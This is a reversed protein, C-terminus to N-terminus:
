AELLEIAQTMLETHDGNKLRFEHLGSQFEDEVIGLSALNTLHKISTGNSCRAKRSISTINLKRRDQLIGFIRLCLKSSLCKYFLILDEQTVKFNTRAM